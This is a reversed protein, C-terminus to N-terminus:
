SGDDASRQEFWARILREQRRASGGQITLTDGDENLTVVVEPRRAIWDALQKALESVRPDAGLWQLVLYGGVAADFAAGKASPAGGRSAVAPVGAEHLLRAVDALLEDDAAPRQPWGAQEVRLIVETSM